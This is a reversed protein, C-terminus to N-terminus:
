GQRLLQKVFRLLWTTSPGRLLDEPMLKMELAAANEELYKQFHVGTWRLPEAFEGPWRFFHGSLCPPTIMPQPKHFNRGGNIAGGQEVALRSRGM